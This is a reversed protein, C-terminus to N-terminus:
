IKLQSCKRQQIELVRAKNFAELAERREIEELCWENKKECKYKAGRIQTTHIM